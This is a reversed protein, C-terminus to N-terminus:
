LPVYGYRRIGRYISEGARFPRCRRQSKHRLMRSIRLVVYANVERFAQRPYGYGFFRRWGRLVRNLDDVNAWIPRNSWRCIGKIKGRVRELAKKSLQVNLYRCDRGKLDRDWRYTFGLFDLSEGEWTLRRISTKERNITLGLNTELKEEIWEVIQPGIYRAMVVFDDAYRAIRANAFHRPGDLDRNFSRDLEHLYLNSLLPSVVGGQPTGAKPKTTQKQGRDDEDVVPCRLWMRLLKLISRDAIRREVVALLQDHPITDFYSSLDADYM